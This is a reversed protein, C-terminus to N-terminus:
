TTEPTSPVVPVATDAVGTTEAGDVVAEETGAASLASVAQPGDLVEADPPKVDPAPTPADGPASSAAACCKAWSIAWCASWYM